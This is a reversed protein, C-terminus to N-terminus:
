EQVIIMGTMSPHISCHYVYTGPADFTHSFSQGTALTGSDFVTHPASDENVWEVTDGVKVTLSEPSFAFNQITVSTASTEQAAPLPSPASAGCSTLVTLLGLLLIFKKM